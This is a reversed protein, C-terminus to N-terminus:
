PVVGVGSERSRNGVDWKRQIQKRKVSQLTAALTLLLVFM